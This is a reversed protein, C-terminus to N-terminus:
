LVGLILVFFFPTNYNGSELILTDHFHSALGRFSGYVEKKSSNDMEKSRNIDIVTNRGTDFNEIIICDGHGVNLFHIKLM